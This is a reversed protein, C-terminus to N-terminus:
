AKDEIKRPGVKAKQKRLADARGKRMVAVAKFFIISFMAIGALGAIPNSPLVTLIGFIVL